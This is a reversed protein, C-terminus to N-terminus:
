ILLPLKPSNTAVSHIFISLTASIKSNIVFYFTSNKLFSCAVRLLSTSTMDAKVIITQSGAVVVFACLQTQKGNEGPKRILFCTETKGNEMDETGSLTAATPSRVVRQRM